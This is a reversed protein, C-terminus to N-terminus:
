VGNKKLQFIKTKRRDLFAFFSQRKPHRATQDGGQSGSIQGLKIKSVFLGPVFVCIFDFSV